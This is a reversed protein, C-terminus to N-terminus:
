KNPSIEVYIYQLFVQFPLQLPIQHYLLQIYRTRHHSTEEQLEGINPHELLETLCNKVHCRLTPNKLGSFLSLSLVSVTLPQTLTFTSCEIEHHEIIRLLVQDFYSFM